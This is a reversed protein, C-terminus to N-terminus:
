FDILDNVRMSLSDAIRCLMDFGVSVRGTEIEWLYSQNTGVMLALMRQSLGQTQRGERIKAGLLERRTANEMRFLM